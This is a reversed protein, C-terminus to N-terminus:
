PACSVARRPGARPVAPSGPVVRRQDLAERPVPFPHPPQFLAAEASRGGVRELRDDEGAAAIRAINKRRLAADLITQGEEVELVQGTSEFTLQYSM